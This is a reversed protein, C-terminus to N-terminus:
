PYGADSTSSHGALVGFLVLAGLGILVGLALKSRAWWQYYRWADRLGQQRDATILMFLAFIGPLVFKFFVGFGGLVVLAYWQVYPRILLVAAGGLIYLNMLLQGGTLETRWWPRAAAREARWRQEEREGARVPQLEVKMQAAARLEDTDYGCRQLADLRAESARLAAIQILYLAVALVAAVVPFLYFGDPQIGKGASYDRVMRLGIRIAFVVAAGACARWGWAANYALRRLRLLANWKDKPALRAVERIFAEPSEADTADGDQARPDIDTM